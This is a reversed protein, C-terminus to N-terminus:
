ERSEGPKFYIIKKDRGQDKEKLVKMGVNKIVESFPHSSNAITMKLVGEKKPYPRIDAGKLKIMFNKYRESIIKKDYDSKGKSIEKKIFNEIGAAIFGRVNKM